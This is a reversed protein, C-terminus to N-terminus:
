TFLHDTELGIQGRIEGNPNAATHVNIYYNGSIMKSIFDATLASGAITANISNGSIYPVLDLIVPGSVGPLGEHIHALTIAGSLGNVSAHICLTDRTSNFVFSAVGVANTVVAPVEQDGTLKASFTLNSSLNSSFTHLSIVLGAVFLTFVKKM